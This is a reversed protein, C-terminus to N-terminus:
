EPLMCLCIFFCCFYWQSKGVNRQSLLFLNFIFHICQSNGRDNKPTLNEKIPNSNGITVLSWTSFDHFNRPTLPTVRLGRSHFIRDPFPWVSFVLLRLLLMSLWPDQSQLVLSFTFGELCIADCQRKKKLSLTHLHVVVCTNGVHFVHKRLVIHFM